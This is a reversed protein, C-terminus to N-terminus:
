PKRKCVLLETSNNFMLLETFLQLQLYLENLGKLKPFLHRLIYFCIVLQTSDMIRLVSVDISHIIKRRVPLVQRVVKLSLLKYPVNFNNRLKIKKSIWKNTM